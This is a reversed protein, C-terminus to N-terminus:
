FLLHGINKQDKEGKGQHFINANRSARQTFIEHIQRCDACFVPFTLNQKICSDKRMLFHGSLLRILIRRILNFQKRASKVM